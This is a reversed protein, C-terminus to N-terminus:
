TNALGLVHANVRAARWTLHKGANKLAGGEKRHEFALMGSGSVHTVVWRAV